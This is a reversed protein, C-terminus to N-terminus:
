SFNSAKLETNNSLVYQTFWKHWTYERPIQAALPTKRNWAKKGHPVEHGNRYCIPFARAANKRSVPRNGPPITQQGALSITTKGAIEFRMTNLLISIAALTIATGPPSITRPV